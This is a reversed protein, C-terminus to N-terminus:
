RPMFTGGFRRNVPRIGIGDLWDVIKMVTALSNPKQRYQKEVVYRLLMNVHNRRYEAQEKAPGRSKKGRARQLQSYNAALIALALREEPSYFPLVRPQLACKLLHEAAHIEAQTLHADNTGM